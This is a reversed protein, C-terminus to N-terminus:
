TEFYYKIQRESLIYVFRKSYSGDCYVAAIQFKYNKHKECNLTKTAKLVGLENVLEIQFCMTQIAFSDFPKVFLLKFCIGFLNFIKAVIFTKIRSFLYQRILCLYFNTLLNYDIVEFPIEHNGRKTIHFDCVKTQDVKILPTIEVFTENEKILGHYSTELIREPFM